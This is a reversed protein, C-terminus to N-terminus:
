KSRNLVEASTPNPTSPAEPILKALSKAGLILNEPLISQVFRITEPRAPNNERIELSSSDGFIELEIHGSSEDLSIFGADTPLTMGDAIAHHIHMIKDNDSLPFVIMRNDERAFKFRTPSPDATIYSALAEPSDLLVIEERLPDLQGETYDNKYKRMWFLRAIYDTSPDTRDLTRVLNELDPMSMAQLTELSHNEKM